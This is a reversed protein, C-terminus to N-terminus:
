DKVLGLYASMSVDEESAVEAAQSNSQVALKAGGPTAAPGTATKTKATNKAAVAAVSKAAADCRSAYTSEAMSKFLKWGDTGPLLTAPDVGTSKATDEMSKNWVQQVDVGAYKKGEAAWVTEVNAQQHRGETAALRQEMQALRTQLQQNTELTQVLAAGVDAEADVINFNGAAVAQKIKELRQVQVQLQQEEATTLKEGGDRKELLQDVKRLATALDQQMRQMVKDPTGPQQQSQQQAEQGAVQGADAAAAAQETTKADGAATAATADPVPTPAAGTAAADGEPAPAAGADAANDQKAAEAAPAAAPPTKEGAQEGAILLGMLDPAADAAAAAQNTQQTSDATSSAASNAPAANSDPM